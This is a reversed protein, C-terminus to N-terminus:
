KKEEVDFIDIKQDKKIEVLAKKWNSLKQERRLKGFRRGKGAVMTTRVKIVEVDFVDEVAQAIIGKSAKKDVEFCYCKKAALQMSKETLIPRKIVWSLGM